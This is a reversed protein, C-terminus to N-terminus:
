VDCTYRLRHDMSTSGQAFVGAGNAWSSFRAVQDEIMSLERPHITAAVSLCKQFFELCENAYAAITPGELNTDDYQGAM